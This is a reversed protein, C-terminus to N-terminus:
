VRRVLVRRAVGYGLALNTGRVVVQVPGRLLGKRVVTVKVGPTLGMDALRRVLGRGGYLYVVVGQAGEPLATLPVVEEIRAPLGRLSSRMHEIGPRSLGHRLLWHSNWDHVKDAETEHVYRHVLRHLGDERHTALLNEGMATLRYDEGARYVLGRSLADQLAKFVEEKPVSLRRSAEELDFKGGGEVILELLEVTLDESAM